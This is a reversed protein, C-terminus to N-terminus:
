YKSSSPAKPREEEDEGYEYPTLLMKEADPIRSHIASLYQDGEIPGTTQFNIQFQTKPNPTVSIMTKIAWPPLGSSSAIKAAYQSFHKVSTPSVRLTAMEADEIDKELASIPMVVLKRYTKCAPGKGVPASGFVAKPCAKCTECVPNPVNEHPILDASEMAQSFCDPPEINDADFPKTFLTKEHCHAVIVCELKNDPIPNDQYSMVGSRLSIFSAIPREDKATKEAARALDEKWNTVEKSKTM